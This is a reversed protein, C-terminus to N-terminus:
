RSKVPGCAAADFAEWVENVREDDVILVPLAYLADLTPQASTPGSIKWIVYDRDREIEFRVGDCCREELAALRRSEQETEDTARLQWTVVGPVRTRDVSSAAFLRRFDATRGARDSPPLRCVPTNQM